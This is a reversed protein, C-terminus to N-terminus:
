SAVTPGSPASRLAATAAEDVSGDARVEVRYVDRAYQASLREEHVDAAVEVPDRGLPDGIGGGGATQHLLRQGGTIWTTIKTPLLETTGDTEIRYTMSPTGAAGGHLGYPPVARRHTRVQLRARDGLFELGRQLALGGRFTGAGGSDPAYEFRTVRVPDEAELIEIPRCAINGAFNSVGDLGDLTPRAGWSGCIIDNIQYPRGDAYYGGIRLGTTGGENAAPVKDPLAQALAGFVADITRFVVVGRAACGAPPKANLVSGEPIRITIPRACGDNNAIDEGILARICTYVAGVTSGPTANISGAVQPSTGAFDVDIEDGRIEVRVRIPVLTETLGDHDEFDEFEYVGDPWSAIAARTVAESHDLIAEIYRMLEDPGYTAALRRFEDGARKCGALQAELDGNVVDPVRVNLRIISLLDEDVHGAHYLKVPPLRLGEQFIETSDAASGGPVRGGIDTQHAVIVSYGLRRDDLSIPWFMFIDPLHMGGHYPDNLIVVDGDVLTDGFRALVANMAGPISGLHIPLSLGQTIMRGTPDCIATSFDMIDRVVGSMAAKMLRVAMEDGITNLQSRIVELTVLDLRATPDAPPANQVVPNEL